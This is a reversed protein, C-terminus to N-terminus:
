AEYIKTKKNRKGSDESDESDESRWLWLPSKGKSILVRLQTLRVVGLLGIPNGDCFLLETNVALWSM